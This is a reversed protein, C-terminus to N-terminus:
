LISKQHHTVHYATFYLMERLTLKGLLPHPAILTDLDEETYASINQILTEVHSQLRLILKEKQVWVVSKPIFRATAKGGNQLTIQYKLVLDDYSKSPRNSKGFILRLMFKPVRLGWAL